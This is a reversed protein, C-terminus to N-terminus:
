AWLVKIVWIFCVVYGLMALTQISGRVIACHVYDTLVTWIGVWSHALLALVAFVTMVKMWGTAFLGQWVQFTVDEACVVYSMIFVVYILLILASIRQIYWDKMGNKGLSTVASEVM